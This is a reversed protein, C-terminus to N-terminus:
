RGERDPRPSHERRSNRWTSGRRRTADRPAPTSTDHRTLASRSAATGRSLIWCPRLSGARLGAVLGGILALNMGCVLDRHREALQHFPCNRLRITGDEGHGLEYGHESLVSELDQRSGGGHACSARFRQELEAGLRTAADCLAAWSRGGAVM